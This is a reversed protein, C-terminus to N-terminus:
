NRGFFSLRNAIDTFDLEQTIRYNDTVPELYIKNNIKVSTHDEVFNGTSDMVVMYGKKGLRDYAIALVLISVDECNGYGDAITQQPTKPYNELFTESRYDINDSIWCLIDEMCTIEVEEEFSFNNWDYLRNYFQSCDFFIFIFFVFFIFIKKM